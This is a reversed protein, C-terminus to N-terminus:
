GHRTEEATQGTTRHDRAWNGSHGNHGNGAHFLTDMAVRVGRMVGVVRQMREAVSARVHDATEDVRDITSRIASDVRETQAGVRSTISKVDAVVGDVTAMLSNVKAVLPAVHKQEIEQVMQMTRAYARYGMVAMGVIILAELVSVAAMIGLLLNTTDLNGNVM